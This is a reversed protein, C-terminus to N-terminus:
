SIIGGHRVSVPDINVFILTKKVNKSTHLNVVNTVSLSLSLLASAKYIYNSGSAKKRESRSRQM